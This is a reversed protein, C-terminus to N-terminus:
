RWPPKACERAADSWTIGIDRLLREDLEALARRQRVRDIWLAVVRAAAGLTCRAPVVSRPTVRTADLM